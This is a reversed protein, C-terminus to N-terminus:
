NEKSVIASKYTKIMQESIKDWTFKEKVLMGGNKRLEEQMGANNLLSTISEALHTADTSIVVGAKAKEVEKYLGVQDSIIVPLGCAMAEIVSMGFNESYSPLVFVDSGAYAELKEHGTLLGTFTVNDILGEEKIWKRVKSEYCNEDNGVILLHLDNKERKLMGFSQVLIDLGKKWNIRGLFLIIKKNSLEPYRDKLMERSPLDNFEALDVGNPVVVAKNQFGLFSHCKELEDETTYHIASASQLDRKAILKFYPLKKWARNGLTYPYITGRPTIIYPKGVKRCYHATVGTSYNWVAHIHTVDFKKLNEKLAKTMTLSIQWGTRGVFEFPRLFDFYTIKVGDINVEQNAQMRGKLGVNTTYVSVNVGKKVLAKNLSHVSIIPGGYQFAPWYSPIVCLLNM